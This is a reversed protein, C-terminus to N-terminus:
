PAFKAVFVDDGGASTLAGKGLDTSGELASQTGGSPDGGASPEGGAGAEGPKPSPSAGGSNEGGADAGGAETGAAGGMGIRSNKHEDSSGCASAILTLGLVCYSVSSVSSVSFQTPKVRAM